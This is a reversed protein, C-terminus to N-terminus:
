KSARVAYYPQNALHAEFGPYLQNRGGIAVEFFHILPYDSDTYSAPITAHFATGKQDMNVTQYEEAQHAHRYYLQIQADQNTCSLGIQLDRGREFSKPADHRIVSALDPKQVSEALRQRAEASKERSSSPDAKARESE